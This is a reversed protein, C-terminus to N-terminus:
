YITLQSNECKFTKFVIHFDDPLIVMVSWVINYDGSKYSKIKFRIDGPKHLYYQIM